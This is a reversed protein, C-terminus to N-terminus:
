RLMPLNLRSNRWEYKGKALRSSLSVPQRKRWNETVSVWAHQDISDSTAVETGDRPDDVAPWGRAFEFM